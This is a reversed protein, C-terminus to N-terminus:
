EYHNLCWCDLSGPDSLGDPGNFARLFSPARLADSSFKSSSVLELPLTNLGVVDASSRVNICTLVKLEGLTCYSIVYVNHNSTIASM